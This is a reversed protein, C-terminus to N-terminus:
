LVVCCLAHLHLTRSAAGDSDVDNFALAMRTCNISIAAFRTDDAAELFRGDATQDFVTVVGVGAGNIGGVAVSNGIGAGVPVSGGIIAPASFSRDDSANIRLNSPDCGLTAGEKITDYSCKWVLVSGDAQLPVSHLAPAAHTHWCDSIDRQPTHLASM